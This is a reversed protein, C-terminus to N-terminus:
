TKRAAASAISKMTEPNVAPLPTHGPDSPASLLVTEPSVPRMISSIAASSLEGTEPDLWRVTISPLKKYARLKKLWAVTVDLNVSISPVGERIVDRIVTGAETTGSGESVVDNYSVTYDDKKVPVTEGNFKLYTQYM